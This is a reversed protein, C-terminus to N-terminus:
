VAIRSAVQLRSGAFLRSRMTRWEQELGDRQEPPSIAIMAQARAEFSLGRLRATGFESVVVDADVSGNTIIAPNDIIPVIGDQKGLEGRARVAIISQGGLSDAAARAFDPLGGPTAAIRGGIAEGSVQGFLDVQLVSNIATFKEAVAINAHRHTYSVPKLQFRSHDTLADYLRRTGIATGTIIPVDHTLAGSAELALINDDIIGTHIRLGRHGALRALVESPIQGTGIQVTAGDPVLCAVAQAITTSAADAPRNALEPLPADHEIVGALASLAIRRHGATDPMQPNIFGIVRNVQHHFGPFFDAQVGMSCMGNADPPSLMVLATDFLDPQAFWRDIVGYRWPHFEVLGRAMDAKLARTLLFARVRLNRDADALSVQNVLPSFIGTIVADHAGSDALMAPLAGIEAACASVYLSRTEALARALGDRGM